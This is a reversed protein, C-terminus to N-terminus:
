AVSGMGGGASRVRGESAWEVKRGDATVPEKGGNRTVFPAKSSDRLITLPDTFRQSRRANANGTSVRQWQQRHEDTFRLGRGM